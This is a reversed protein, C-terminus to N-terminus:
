LAKRPIDKEWAVSPEALMTVDVEWDCMQKLIAEAKSYVEEEGLYVHVNKNRNRNLKIKILDNIQLSNCNNFFLRMSTSSKPALPDGAFQHIKTAEDQYDEQPSFHLDEMEKLLTELVVNGERPTSM